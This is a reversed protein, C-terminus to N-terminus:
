LAVSCVAFNSVSVYHIVLDSVHYAIKRTKSSVYFLGTYQDEIGDCDELASGGLNESAESITHGQFLFENRERFILRKALLIAKPWMKVQINLVVPEM